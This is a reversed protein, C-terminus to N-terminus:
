LAYLDSPTPSSSRVPNVTADLLRSTRSTPRSERTSDSNGPGTTDYQNELIRSYAKMKASRQTQLEQTSPLTPSLPAPKKNKPAGVKLSSFRKMFVSSRSEAKKNETPSTTKSKTLPKIAYPDELEEIAPTIPTASEIQTKPLTVTTVTSIKSVARTASKTDVPSALKSDVRPPPLVPEVAKPTPPAETKVPSESTEKIPSAEKVASSASRQSVPRPFEYSKKSTASVAPTSSNSHISGALMKAQVAGQIDSDRKREEHSSLAREEGNEDIIVASGPRKVEESPESLVPSLPTKPVPSTPSIPKAKNQEEKKEVKKEEWKSSDLRPLPPVVLTPNPTCGGSIPIPTDGASKFKKMSASSKRRSISARRWWSIRKGDTSEKTDQNQRPATLRDLAAANSQAVTNRRKSEGANTSLEGTPTVLLASSPPQASSAPAPAAINQSKRKAFEQAMWNQADSADARSAPETKSLGQTFTNVKAADAPTLAASTLATSGNSADVDRTTETTLTSNDVSAIPRISLGAKSERQSENKATSTRSVSTDPDVAIGSDYRKATPTEPDDVHPGSVTFSPNNKHKPLETSKSKEETRKGEKSSKRKWFMEEYVQDSPKNIDRLVKILTNRLEAETQPSLVQRDITPSPPNFFPSHLFGSTRNKDLKDLKDKDLGLTTRQLSANTLSTQRRQTTFRQLSHM